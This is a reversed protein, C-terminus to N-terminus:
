AGFIPLPEKRRAHGAGQRPVAVVAHPERPILRDWSSEDQHVAGTPGSSERVLPALWALSASLWNDTSQRRPQIDHARRAPRPLTEKMQDTMIDGNRQARHRILAREVWHHWQHFPISRRQAEEYLPRADVTCLDEMFPSSLKCALVTLRFYEEKHDKHRPPPPGVDSQVETERVSARGNEAPGEKIGQLDLPPVPHAEAEAVELQMSEHLEDRISSFRRKRNVIDEPSGAETEEDDSEQVPEQQQAQMAAIAQEYEAKDRKSKRLTFDLVTQLDHLRRQEDVLEQQCSALETELKICQQRWHDCKKRWKDAERERTEALEAKEQLTSIQAEQRRTKQTARALAGKLSAVEAALNAVEGRLADDSEQEQRKRDSGAESSRRSASARLVQLEATLEGVQTEAEALSSRLLGIRREHSGRDEVLTRLEENQKEALERERRQEEMREYLIGCLEAALRCDDRRFGLRDDGGDHVEHACYKNRLDGVLVALESLPMEHSLLGHDTTADHYSSAKRPREDAHDEYVTLDSTSAAWLSPYGKTVSM